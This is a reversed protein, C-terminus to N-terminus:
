RRWTSRREHRAHGRRPGPPAPRIRTAWCLEMWGCSRVRCCMATGRGAASASGGDTLWSWYHVEAQDACTILLSIAESFTFQPGGNIATIRQGDLEFDVTLTRHRGSWPRRLTYDLRQHDELEPLDVRLVRGSGEQTSSGSSTPRSPPCPSRRDTLTGEYSWLLPWSADIDPCRIHPPDGVGCQSRWFPTPGADSSM